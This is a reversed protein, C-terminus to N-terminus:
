LKLVRKKFEGILEGLDDLNKGTEEDITMRKNSLRRHRLSQARPDNRSRLSQWLSERREMDSTGEANANSSRRGVHLTPPPEDASGDDSGSGM